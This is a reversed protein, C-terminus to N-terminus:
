DMRNIVGCISCECRGSLKVPHLQRQSSDSSAFDLCTMALRSQMTLDDGKRKRREYAHHDAMADRYSQTALALRYAERFTQIKSRLMMTQM